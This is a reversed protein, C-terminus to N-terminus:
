PQLPQKGARPLWLAAALAFSGAFLLATLVSWSPMWPPIWSESTQFGDADGVPTAIPPHRAHFDDYFHPDKISKGAAISEEEYRQYAKQYDLGLTLEADFAPRLRGVEDSPLTAEITAQRQRCHDMFRQQLQPDPWVLNSLRSAREFASWALYRQGVRMMTEGLALAFYPHAGGGMRWMGVVGLTPEDFPVPKQHETEVVQAWGKEAGVRTIGGRVDKYQAWSGPHRLYDAARRSMAVGGYLAGWRLPGDGGPRTGFDSLPSYEEKDLNIDLQNGVMDYYLLVRPNAHLEIMYEILVAQWRERGFHSDPNIEIATQISKLGERLVERDQKNGPRVQRFPGLILFTGLNAHTSYLQQRPTKLEVQQRLKDRMLRIAEDHKGAMELGVALDDLLDFYEQPPPSDQPQAKWKALAQRTRRNREKYYALGHRPFREHLVDHVMAFRLAVGGESKPVVYPYPLRTTGIPPLRSLGTVRAVLLGICAGIVGALLVRVLSGVLTM